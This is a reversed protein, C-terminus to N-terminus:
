ENRSKPRSQNMMESIIPGIKELPLVQDAAGLKVAAGPMGWVISSSEDQAITRWGADKLTKLGAAGDRGMGTLLVAIGPQGAAGCLSQFLVDVSPRHVHDIPNRVSQFFGASTLVLHDTTCAIGVTGIEPATGPEIKQVPLKTEYALWDVLGPVFLEDLHQVVVVSYNIPRALGSLLTALAQPGGTSAGIAVIPTAQTPAQQDLTDTRFIDELPSSAQSRRLRVLDRIKRKLDDGGSISGDRGIVPTNVADLAGFGLAEYVKNSNGGVTATVVLIPCPCRTMIQRTAEVGNMVPMILDMLLIDPTDSQCRQLAQQGDEATWAVQVEPLAVIIRRLVEVAMPVDNVIAIRIM